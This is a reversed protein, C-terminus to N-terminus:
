GLALEQTLKTTEGLEPKIRPIGTSTPQSSNALTLADTASEFPQTGRLGLVPVKITIKPDNRLNDTATKRRTPKTVTHKKAEAM